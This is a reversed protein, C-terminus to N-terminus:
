ILQGVAQQTHAQSNFSHTCSYGKDEVNQHYFHGNTGHVKLTKTTGKATSWGMSETHAKNFVM